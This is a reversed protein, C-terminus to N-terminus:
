LELVKTVKNHSVCYITEPIQGSYDVILAVLSFSRLARVSTRAGYRRKAGTLAQQAAESTRPSQGEKIPEVGVAVHLQQIPFWRFTVSTGALASPSLPSYIGQSNTPSGNGVYVTQTGSTGSSTSASYNV